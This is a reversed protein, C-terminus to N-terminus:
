NANPTIAKNKPAAAQHAIDRANTTVSQALATLLPQQYNGEGINASLQEMKEELDAMRQDPDQDRGRMKSDKQDDEQRQRKLRDAAGM